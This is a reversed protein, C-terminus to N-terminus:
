STIGVEIRNKVTELNDDSRIEMKDRCNEPPNLPPMRVEPQGNSAPLMIDAVNFNKGCDRCIRRGLCKATLVQLCCLARQQVCLLLIGKCLQALSLLLCKVVAREFLINCISVEPRLSLNVALQTDAILALMQAQRRTRPFGDLLVGLEGKGQGDQLRKELLQVCFCTLTHLKYSFTVRSALVLLSGVNSTCSVELIMEDPLLDGKAVIAQAQLLLVNCQPFCLIISFVKNSTCHTATHLM